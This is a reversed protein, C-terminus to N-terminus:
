CTVRTSSRRSRSRADQGDEQLADLQWPRDGRHGAAFDAQGPDRRRDRRRLLRGRSRGPKRVAAGGRAQRRGVDGAWRAVAAALFVGAVALVVLVAAVAILGEAERRHRPPMGVPRRRRARPRRCRSRSTGLRSSGTRGTRRWATGCSGTSLPRSTGDRIVFAGAAGGEPDRGDHREGHGALVGEQGCLMEYLVAGLSFIDSRHDAPLGRVQEPSMYGLTGMM